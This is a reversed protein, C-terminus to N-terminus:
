LERCLPSRLIQMGQVEIVMSSVLIVMIVICIM